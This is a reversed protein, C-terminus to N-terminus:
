LRDGTVAIFVDRLTAERTHITEVASDAMLTVLAPDTPVTLPFEASRVQGAARYEVRVTPRGYALRLARPTDVATLRGHALFAVRDCVEEVTTMDHTTLFVTCGDRARARIVDHVQAAHAPDLGATPEDLFLVEPQHLMARALNLRMAMGKSLAGARRGASGALGVLDLAALPTLTPRRYLGAVAALNEEVTLRPFCAPLEFGVGIREYLDPGWGSVPRGLVEASGRYGTLQGTLVRQTTSKGAGNPGLLGFVEGRAVEFGIGDVADRQGGRYRVRLDDVRIAPAQPHPGAAATSGQRVGRNFRMAQM